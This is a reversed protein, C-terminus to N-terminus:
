AAEAQLIRAVPRTAGLRAPVATLGVVVLVTAILVVMWGVSPYAM